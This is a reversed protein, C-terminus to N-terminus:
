ASQSFGLATGLLHRFLPAPCVTSGYQTLSSPRSSPQLALPPPTPLLPVPFVM